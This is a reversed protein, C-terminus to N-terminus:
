RVSKKAHEIGLEVWSQLAEETSYGDPSVFIFEKMVRGTFDMPSVFPRELVDKIKESVVRVVLRGKTEGIVMKGHYLFCSGGFMRKCEIANGWPELCKSLRKVTDESNREM